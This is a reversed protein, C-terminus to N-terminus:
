RSVCEENQAWEHENSCKFVLGQTPTHKQCLTNTHTSILTRSLSVAPPHVQSPTHSFSNTPMRTLTTTHSPFHMHADAACLLSRLTFSVVPFPVLSCSFRLARDESVASLNVPRSLGASVFMCLCFSPSRSLFHFCLSPFSLSFLLFLPLLPM